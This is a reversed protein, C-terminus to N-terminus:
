IELTLVLVLVIDSNSGTKGVNNPPEGVKPRGKATCERM